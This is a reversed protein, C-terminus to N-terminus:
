EAAVTTTGADRASELDDHKLTLRRQRMSEVVPSSEVHEVESGSTVLGRSRFERVSLGSGDLVDSNSGLCVSPMACRLNKLSLIQM